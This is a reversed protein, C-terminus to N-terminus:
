NTRNACVTYFVLELWKMNVKKTNYIKAENNVAIRIQITITCLRYSYVHCAPSCVTRWRCRLIIKVVTLAVAYPYM